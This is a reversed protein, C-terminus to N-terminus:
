IRFPAVRAQYGLPDAIVAAREGPIADTWDIMADVATALEAVTPRKAPDVALCRAVLEALEDDCRRDAATLRPCAGLLMAAAEEAPRPRAFPRKGAIWEYIMVGLAWVDARTDVPSGEIQEPAMYGVSGVAAGTDTHRTMGERWALGLDIVTISGDPGAIVNEPK